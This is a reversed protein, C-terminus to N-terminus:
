NIQKAIGELEQALHALWTERPHVGPVWDRLFRGVRAGGYRVGAFLLTASHFKTVSDAQSHVIRHRVNAMAEIRASHSAVTMELNGSSFFRKSRDIVHSPNHWLVYARGNLVDHEAAALTARYREGPKLPEQGASASYGCLLRLFADELFAEWSVFIKLFALEYLSEVRSFHLLARTRSSRSSEARAVEGVEALALADSVRDSFQQALPPLQRPM